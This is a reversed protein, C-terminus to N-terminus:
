LVKTKKTPPPLFDSSGSSFGESVLVLLLSLRRIIALGPTSGLGCSHSDFMRVVAGNTSETREM